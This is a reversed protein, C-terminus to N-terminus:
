SAEGQRIAHEIKQSATMSELKDNDPDGSGPKRGGSAGGGNSPPWWHPANERMGELWEAPQLSGKGDKGIVVAGDRDRAEIDFEDSVSFVNRARLEIDELSTPQVGLKVAADRVGRGVILESIKATRAQLAQETEGLKMTLAEVQKDLDQRLKKTRREIVEDVKGEGILRTEDDNAMRNMIAHVIEPDLGEWTKNVADLAAKAERKEALIAEKNERLGSTAAAVADDVLKKVDPNTLDIKPENNETPDAM